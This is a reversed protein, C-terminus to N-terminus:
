FFQDPDVERFDTILRDAFEKGKIFPQGASIVVLHGVGAAHAATIGSFSDEFVVVDKPERGLRAVAKLYIDPAPKSPFTGDSYILHDETFWRELKFQQRYFDMNSKECASAIAFPIGRALLKEFFAEAGQNLVLKEPEKLCLERYYAEKELGMRLLEKEDLKEGTLYEIIYRNEKGNLKSYYEENGLPEKRLKKAYDKWAQEHYASDLFLTGNFDFVVGSFKM